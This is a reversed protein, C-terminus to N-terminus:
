NCESISQVQPLLKWGERAVLTVAEIVFDMTQPDMFFPINLRAIGPKLAERMEEPFRSEEMIYRQALKDDIGLVTQLFFHSVPNLTHTFGFLHVIQKYM